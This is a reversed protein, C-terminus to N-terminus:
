CSCREWIAFYKYIVYFIMKKPDKFRFLSRWQAKLTLIKWTICLVTKFAIKVVPHRWICTTTSSSSSLSIYGSGLRHHRVDHGTQIYWAWSSLQRGTLWCFLSSVATKLFVHLCPIQLDILTLQVALTFHLAVLQPMKFQMSLWCLGLFM